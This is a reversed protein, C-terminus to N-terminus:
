LGSSVKHVEEYDPACVVFNLTRVISKVKDLSGVAQRIGCKIPLAGGADSSGSASAAAVATAAPCYVATKLNFHVGIAAFETKM